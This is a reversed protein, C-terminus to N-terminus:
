SQIHVAPICQFCTGMHMVWPERFFRDVSHYRYILFPYTNSSNVHSPSPLEIAPSVSFWYIGPGCFLIGWCKWDPASLRSSRQVATPWLNENYSGFLQTGIDIFSPSSPLLSMLVSVSLWAFRSLLHPSVKRQVENHRHQLPHFTGSAGTSCRREALGEQFHGWSAGLPHRKLQNWIWDINVM